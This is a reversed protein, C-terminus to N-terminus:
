KTDFTYSADLTIVYFETDSTGKPYMIARVSELTPHTNDYSTHKFTGIIQNQFGFKIQEDSVASLTVWIHERNGSKQVSFKYVDRDKYSLFERLIQYPSNKSNCFLSTCFTSIYYKAESSTGGGPAPSLTGGGPAPSLTGGGPAPSLTGGSAGNSTKGPTGGLSNCALVIDSSASSTVSSLLTSIRRQAGDVSGAEVKIAYTRSRSVNQISFTNQTFPNSIIIADVRIGNVNWTASKM